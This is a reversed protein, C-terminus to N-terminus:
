KQPIGQFKPLINVGEAEALIMVSAMLVPEAENLRIRWVVKAERGARLRSITQVRDGDVIEFDLGSIMRVSVNSIDARSLNTVYASVEVTGDKKAKAKSWSVSAAVAADGDSSALTKFHGQVAGLYNSPGESLAVSDEVEGGAAKAFIDSLVMTRRLLEGQTAEYLSRASTVGAEDGLQASLALTEAKNSLLDVEEDAKLLAEVKQELDGAKNDAAVLAEQARTQYIDLSSQLEGLIKQNFQANMAVRIMPAEQSEAPAFPDYAFKVGKLMDGKPMRFYYSAVTWTSHAILGGSAVGAVIAVVKTINTPDLLSAYGIIQAIKKAVGAYDRERANLTHRKVVQAAMVERMSSETDSSGDDWVKAVAQDYTGHATLDAAYENALNVAGQSRAVFGIKPVSSLAYKGFLKVGLNKWFGPNDRDIDVNLMRSAVSAVVSIIIPAYTSKPPKLRASLYIGFKEGVALLKSYIRRKLAALVKGIIPVDQFNKAIDRITSHGALLLRVFDFVSLATDEALVLGNNYSFEIYSEALILRRITDKVKQEDQTHPVPREAPVEWGEVPYGFDQGWTALLAKTGEEDYDVLGLGDPIPLHPFGRTLELLKWLKLLEGEFFQPDIKLHTLSHVLEKKKNILYGVNDHSDDSDDGKAPASFLIDTKLAESIRGGDLAEFRARKLARRLLTAMAEKDEGQASAILEAARPGAKPDNALKGALASLNQEKAQLLDGYFANAVADGKVDGLDARADITSLRSGTGILDAIADGKRNEFRYKFSVGKKSGSLARVLFTVKGDGVQFNHIGDNKKDLQVETVKANGAADFEVAHVQFRSKKGVLGPNDGDFRFTNGAKADASLSAVSALSFIPVEAPASESNGLYHFKYNLKSIVTGLRSFPGFEAYYRDGDKALPTVVTQEQTTSSGDPILRAPPMQGDNVTWVINGPQPSYIKVRDVMTPHDPSYDVKSAVSFYKAGDPSVTDKQWGSPLGNKSLVKTQVAFRITDDYGWLGNGPTDANVINALYWDNKIEELSKQVGRNKLVEAISEEGQKQNAVMEKVFAQREADTNGGYKSFLYYTWLYSRGYDELTNDFRTFSSDTDHIYSFIQPAHGYGNVFFAIQAYSENLWRTEKRDQNFHIMHQFEHALVGLYDQRAPNGPHLDLYFMQRENSQPFLRTSFGDLPFFYGAVYGRGPEWGDQIDMFLLTIRPDADIGPIDEKGFYAHNTPYITGDFQGAMRELVSDEVEYGEQVYFYAHESIKRLEAQFQFPQNATMDISWFSSMQGLVQEEPERPVEFADAGMASVKDLYPKVFDQILPTGDIWQPGSPKAPTTAAMVAPVAIAAVLALAVLSRLLTGRYM